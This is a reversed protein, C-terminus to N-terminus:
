LLPSWIIWVKQLIGEGCFNPRGEKIWLYKFLSWLTNRLWASLVSIYHIAIFNPGYFKLFQFVSPPVLYNVKQLIPQGWFSPGGEKIQLFKFVECFTSRLWASHMSGLSHRLFHTQWVNLISICFPSGFLQSKRCFQKVWFHPWGAKIKLFKLVRLFTNGFWASHM